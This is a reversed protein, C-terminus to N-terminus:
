NVTITTQKNDSGGSNSVTLTVTYTGKKTFKHTPIPVNLFPTGDGFNWRWSTPSYTSTDTFTVTLPNSGSTASATFNAVPPHSNVTITESSSDQGDENIATLSVNYIGANNYTHTPNKLSSNTGDGFDWRWENADDALDSFEVTLPVYGTLPTAYLYAYPLQKIRISKKVATTGHRNTVTQTINYTGPTNYIHNPEAITDPDSGDGFDYSYNKAKQSEDTIQIDLPAFGTSPNFSFGATPPQRISTINTFSSCVGNGQKINVVSKNVYLNDLYKDETHL